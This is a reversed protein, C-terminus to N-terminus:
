AAEEQISVFIKPMSRPQIMKEIREGFSTEKVCLKPIYRLNDFAIEERVIVIGKKGNILWEWPSPHVKLRGSNACLWPDGIQEEGLAFTRNYETALDGTKPNWYVIDIEDGFKNRSLFAFHVDGSEGADFYGKSSCFGRAMCLCDPHSFAHSNIGHSKLLNMQPPKILDLSAYDSYVSM